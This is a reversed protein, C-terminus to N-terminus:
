LLCLAARTSAFICGADCYRNSVNATVYRRQFKNAHRPLALISLAHREAVSRHTLLLHMHMCLPARDRAPLKMRRTRTSDLSDLAKSVTESSADQACVRACTARKKLEKCESSRDGDPFRQASVGGRMASAADDAVNTATAALLSLAATSMASLDLLACTSLIRNISPLRPRIQIQRAAGRYFHTGWARFGWCGM